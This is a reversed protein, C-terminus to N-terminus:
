SKNADTKSIVFKKMISSILIKYKQMNLLTGNGAEKGVRSALEGQINQKYSPFFPIKKTVKILM